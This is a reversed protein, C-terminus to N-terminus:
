GILFRLGTHDLVHRLLQRSDVSSTYESEEPGFNCVSEACTIRVVWANVQGRDRPPCEELDLRASSRKLMPEVIIREDDNATKIVAAANSEEEGPQAAVADDAFFTASGVIALSRCNSRHM